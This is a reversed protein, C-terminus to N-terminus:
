AGCCKKFKKGSGCPCTDNRGTKPEHRRVTEPGHHHTHHHGEGERHRHGDGGIYAWDGHADRAFQSTEHHDWTAGNQTYTAVFEVLGTIDSAGGQATRVVNLRKFTGSSAWEKAGKAHAASQSKPAFTKGIYDFAGQTFATFRSRMLEEATPPKATGSIYPGCCADFDKDSGCPCSM